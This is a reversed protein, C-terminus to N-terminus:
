LNCSLNIMKTGTLKPPFPPLHVQPVAPYQDFRHNSKIVTTLPKSQHGQLTKTKTVHGNILIAEALDGESETETLEKM